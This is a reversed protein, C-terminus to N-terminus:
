NKLRAQCRAEEFAATVVDGIQDALDHLGARKAENMLYNLAAMIQAASDIPLEASKSFKGM